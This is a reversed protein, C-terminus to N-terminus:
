NRNRLFEEKRMWENFIFIFISNRYELHFLFLFLYLFISSSKIESWLFIVSSLSSYKLSYQRGSNEKYIFSVTRKLLSASNVERRKISPPCISDRPVSNKPPGRNLPRASEGTWRWFRKRHVFADTVANTENLDQFLRIISLCSASLSSLCITSRTHLLRFGVIHQRFATKDQRPIAPRSKEVCCHPITLLVRNWTKTHAFEKLFVSAFNENEKKSNVLEKKLLIRIVRTGKRVCLPIILIDFHFTPTYIHRNFNIWNYIVHFFLKDRNYQDIEM